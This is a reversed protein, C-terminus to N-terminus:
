AAFEPWLGILLGIKGFRNAVRIMMRLVSCAVFDKLLYPKWVDFSKTKRILAGNIVRIHRYPLVWRREAIM